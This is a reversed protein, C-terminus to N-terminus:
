KMWIISIPPRHRRSMLGTTAISVAHISARDALCWQKNKFHLATSSDKLLFCRFPKEGKSIRKNHKPTKKWPFIDSTTVTLWISSSLSALFASYMSIESHNSLHYVSLDYLESLNAYKLEIIIHRHSIHAPYYINKKKGIDGYWIIYIRFSLRHCFPQSYRLPM